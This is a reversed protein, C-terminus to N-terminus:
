ENSGEELDLAKRKASPEGNEDHQADSAEEGSNSETQSDATADPISESQNEENNDITTAKDQEAEGAANGDEDGEENEDKNDKLQKLRGELAQFLTDAEKASCNILFIKIVNEDWASIRINKDNVKECVMERWLKTNLVVRLSGHTRMVLRSFIHGPTSNPSDNLRLLGRGRETWNRNEKDFLYLKVNCKFVNSEEEEGTVVAVEDYKRKNSNSQETYEAASESLSKGSESFSKTAEGETTGSVSSFALDKTETVKEELKAEEQNPLLVKQTLNEGFVPEATSKVKERLNEGFVPLNIASSKEEAKKDSLPTFSFTSKSATDSTDASSSNPSSAGVTTSTPLTAPPTATSGSPLRSEALVGLKSQKFGTFKHKSLSSSDESPPKGFRSPALIFGKREAM